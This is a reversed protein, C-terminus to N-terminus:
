AAVSWARIRQVETPDLGLSELFDNHAEPMTREFHRHWDRMDEDTLGIAQFLTTWAEKSLPRERTETAPSQLLSMVVHRQTRLAGIQQNLSVLQKELAEALPTNSDLVRKVAELPMGASRLQAIRQLREITDPGYVRHGSRSRATPPLVGIRDYYLLTSRSLGFSKALRSVTVRIPGSPSSATKRAM